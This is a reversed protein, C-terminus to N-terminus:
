AGDPPISVDSQAVIDAGMVGCGLLYFDGTYPGKIDLRFQPNVSARALSSWSQTTYGAHYNDPQVVDESNYRLDNPYYGWMMRYNLPMTSKNLTAWYYTWFQVDRTTFGSVANPNTYFLRIYADSPSNEIHWHLVRQYTPGSDGNKFDNVVEVTGYNGAIAVYADKNRFSAGYCLNAPQMTWMANPMSAVTYRPNDADPSAGHNTRIVGAIKSLRDGDIIYESM